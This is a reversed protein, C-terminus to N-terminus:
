FYKSLYSLFIIIIILTVGSICLGAIALKNKPRTVGIVSFIAGILWCILGILPLWVLVLGIISLIFGTLAMNNKEPYSVTDNYGPIHNEYTHYPNDNFLNDNDFQSQTASNFLDEEVELKEKIVENLEIESINDKEELVIPESSSINIESLTSELSSTDEQQLIPENERPIPPPMFRSYDSEKNLNKDEQM